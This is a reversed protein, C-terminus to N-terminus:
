PRARAPLVAVSEIKLISSAYVCRNTGYDGRLYKLRMMRRISPFIVGANLDGGKAMDRYFHYTGLDRAFAEEPGTPKKAQTDLILDAGTITM